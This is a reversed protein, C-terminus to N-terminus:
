TFEKPVWKELGLLEFAYAHLSDPFHDALIICLTGVFVPIAPIFMWGPSPAGSSYQTETSNFM